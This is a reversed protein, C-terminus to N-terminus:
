VKGICRPRDFDLEINEFDESDSELEIDSNITMVKEFKETLGDYEEARVKRIKTSTNNLSKGGNM